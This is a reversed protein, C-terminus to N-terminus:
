QQQKGARSGGAQYAPGAWLKRLRDEHTKFDLQQCHSLM